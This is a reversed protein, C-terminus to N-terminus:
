TVEHMTTTVIKKLTTITTADRSSFLNCADVYGNETAIRIEREGGWQEKHYTLWEIMDNITCPTANKVKVM